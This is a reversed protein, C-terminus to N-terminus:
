NVRGGTPRDSNRCLDAPEKRDSKKGTPNRISHAPRMCGHPPKPLPATRRLLLPLRTSFSRTVTLGASAGKKAEVLVISPPSVTDAHVFTMRKPELHSARLGAMLDSLRDPRYVLYFLGGYKLLRGAAASFDGIGGATEHRAANRGPNGAPPGSSPRMYPPNSFVIDFERGLSAPTCDRIDAARVEIKDKFRNLTVNRSALSAYDPQLEIAVVSRVKNRAALLLSIIGTGTGLEAADAHLAPKIFASLLYADTGFTLGDKKQILTIRENVPDIREDPLLPIDSPVEENLNVAPDKM